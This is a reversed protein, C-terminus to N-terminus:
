GKQKRGRYKAISKATHMSSAVRASYRTLVSRGSQYKGDFTFRVHIYCNRSIPASHGKVQETAIPAVVDLHSRSRIGGTKSGNSNALAACVCTPSTACNTSRLVATKVASEKRSSERPKGEPNKEM